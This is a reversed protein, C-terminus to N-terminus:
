VISLENNANACAERFNSSTFQTGSGTKINRIKINETTVPHNCPATLDNVASAGSGSTYDNLEVFTEGGNNAHLGGRKSKYSSM